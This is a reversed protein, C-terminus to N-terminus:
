CGNYVKVANPIYESSFGQASLRMNLERADRDALEDIEKGVAYSARRLEQGQNFLMAGQHRKDVWNRGGAQLVVSCAYNFLALSGLDEGLDPVLTKELFVKVDTVGAKQQKALFEDTTQPLGFLAYLITM